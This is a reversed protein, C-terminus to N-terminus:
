WSTMLLPSIRDSITTSTNFIILCQRGGRSSRESQFYILTEMHIVFQLDYIIRGSCLGVWCLLSDHKPRIQWHIGCSWKSIATAIWNPHASRTRLIESGREGDKKRRVFGISLGSCKWNWLGCNRRGDPFCAKARLWSVCYVLPLNPPDTPEKMRACSHLHIYVCEQMQPGNPDTGHGVRWFWPLTDTRQGFRWEDTIDGTVKLEHDTINHLTAQYGLDINLCQLAKRAQRYSSRCKRAQADLKHVNDWARHTTRQSNANHV